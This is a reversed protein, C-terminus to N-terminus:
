RRGRRVAFARVGASARRCRSRRSGDDRGAPLRRWRTTGLHAVQMALPQFHGRQEVWFPSPVIFQAFHPRIRPPTTTGPVYTSGWAVPGVGGNGGITGLAPPGTSGPGLSPCQSPLGIEGSGASVCSASRGIQRRIGILSAMKPRRMTTPAIPLQILLALWDDVPSM